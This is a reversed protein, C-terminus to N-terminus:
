PPESVSGDALDDHYPASLAAHRLGPIWRSFPWPPRYSKRLSAIVHQVPVTLAKGSGSILPDPEEWAELEFFAPNRQNHQHTSDNDNTEGDQGDQKQLVAREAIRTLVFILLGQYAQKTQPQRAIELV